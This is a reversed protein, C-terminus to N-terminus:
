SFREWFELFFLTSLGKPHGFFGTQPVTELVKKKDITSM